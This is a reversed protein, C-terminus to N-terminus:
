QCWIRGDNGGDDWQTAAELSMAELEAAELKALDTPLVSSATNHSHSQSQWNELHNNQQHETQICQQTGCHSHNPQTPSWKLPLLKAEEKDYEDDKDAICSSPSCSEGVTALTRSISRRKSSRERRKQVSFKEVEQLDALSFQRWTVWCTPNTLIGSPM